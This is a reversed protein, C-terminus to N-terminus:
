VNERLEEVEEACTEIAACVAAMINPNEKGFRDRLAHSKDRWRSALVKLQCQLSQEQTRSLVVPPVCQSEQHFQSGCISCASTRTTSM